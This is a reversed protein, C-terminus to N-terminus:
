SASTIRFSLHETQALTKLSSLVEDGTKIILASTKPSNAILKSRMKFERALQIGVVWSWTQRRCGTSATGNRGDEGSDFGLSFIRTWDHTWGPLAPGDRRSPILLADSTSTSRRRAHPNIGYKAQRAVPDVSNELNQSRLLIPYPENMHPVFFRGGEHGTGLRLEGASQSYTYRSGSRSANMKQVAEVICLHIAGRYQRYGTQLM